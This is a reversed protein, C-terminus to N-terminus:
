PRGIDPGKAADITFSSHPDRITVFTYEIVPPLAHGVSFLDQEFTSIAEM